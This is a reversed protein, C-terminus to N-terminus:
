PQNQEAQELWRVILAGDDAPTSPRARTLVCHIFHDVEVALPERLEVPVDHQGIPGLRLLEDPALHKPVRALRLKTGQSMDDFVAIAEDGAVMLRREKHTHIRSLELQAALGSRLQTHVLAVHPPASPSTGRLLAHATALPSPDLAHLVSLDHPGLAWLVSADSRHSADPPLHRGPPSRRASVLYQPQGLLGRRALSLLQVVAPHHLLLHGVMAIRGRAEALQCIADADQSSTALPKEVLVDLGASLALLAAQAHHEAPCAIVAADLPECLADKLSAFVRAKPARERAREQAAPSPDIVTTLAVRPNESLVRLFNQGWAGVGVLAVRLPPQRAPSYM